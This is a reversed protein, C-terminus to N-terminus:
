QTLRAQLKTLLLCLSLLPKYMGLDPLAYAQSGNAQFTLLPELM